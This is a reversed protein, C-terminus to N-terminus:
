LLTVNSIIAANYHKISPTRHQLAYTLGAPVQKREYSNVRQFFPMSDRLFLNTIVSPGLVRDLATILCLSVAM